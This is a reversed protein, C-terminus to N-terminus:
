ATDISFEEAFAAPVPLREVAEREEDSANVYFQASTTISAHDLRRQVVFPSAIRAYRAGCARKLDHLKIQETPKVGAASQIRHWQRYFTRESHPWLFVREGATRIRLLHKIVLRSIPKLRECGCKDFEAPLRIEAREWDVDTWHLSLLAQRRFGVTLAMVILARWWDRPSVGPLMPYRATGAARYIAELLKDPVHRPLRRPQKLPRTWPMQPLISLADRNHHGPPGAKALLSLVARLHKNVTAIALPRTRQARLSFGFLLMQGKGQDRAGPKLGRLRCKFLGLMRTDIEKLRPSGILREWHTLAERYARLTKPQRDTLFNPEYEKEFFERLTYHAPEGNRQM